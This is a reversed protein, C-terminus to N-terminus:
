QSMRIMLLKKLKNIDGTIRNELVGNNKILKETLKLFNYKKYINEIHFVCNYHYYSSEPSNFIDSTYFKNIDNLLQQYSESEMFDDLDEFVAFYNINLHNQSISGDLITFTLKRIVEFYNIIKALKKRRELDLFELYENKLIMIKALEFFKPGYHSSNALKDNDKIKLLTFIKYIEMYRERTIIFNIKRFLKRDMENKMNLNLKDKIYNAFDKKNGHIHKMFAHEGAFTMKSHGISYLLCWCKLMEESSSFDIKNFLKVKNNFNFDSEQSYISAMQSLYAMTIVYDYKRYPPINLFDHLIGLQNIEKLRDIEESFFSFVRSSENKVNVKIDGFIPVRELIMKGEM